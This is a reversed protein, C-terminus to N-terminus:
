ELIAEKADLELEHRLLEERRGLNALESEEEEEWKAADLKHLKQLKAFATSYTTAVGVIFDSLTGHELYQVGPESEHLESQKSSSSIKM